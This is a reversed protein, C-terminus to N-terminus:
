TSLFPWIARLDDRLQEPADDDDKLHELYAFTLARTTADAQDLKQRITDAKEEPSMDDDAITPLLEVIQQRVADAPGGKSGDSGDDDPQIDDVDCGHDAAVRRLVLERNKIHSLLGVNLDTAQATAYDVLARRIEGCIDLEPYEPGQTAAM